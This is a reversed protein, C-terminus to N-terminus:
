FPHMTFIHQRLDKPLDFGKNCISCSYKFQKQIKAPKPNAPFYNDRDHIKVHTSLAQPREFVRDCVPCVHHGQMSKEKHHQRTHISLSDVRSFVMNCSKCPFSKQDRQNDREKQQQKEVIKHLQNHKDFAAQSEFDLDCSNCRPPLITANINRHAELIHIQLATDNIFTQPCNKCAFKPAQKPINNVPQKYLVKSRENVKVRKHWGQHSCLAGSTDFVKKCLNCPFRQGKQAQKVKPKGPVEDHEYQMHENLKAVNVFPIKCYKCYVYTHKQTPPLEEDHKEKHKNLHLKSTFAQGCIDCVLPHTKQVEIIEVEESLHPMEVLESQNDDDYYEGDEDVTMDMEMLEPIENMEMMENFEDINELRHSEKHKQLQLYGQCAQHCVDCWYTKLKGTKSPSRTPPVNVGHSKMHNKLNYKSSFVKFCRKCTFYSEEENVEEEQEPPPEKYITKPSHMREHM